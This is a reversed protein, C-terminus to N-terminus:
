WRSCQIPYSLIPYCVCFILCTTTIEIGSGIGISNRDCGIFAASTMTPYSLFLFLIPYSYSLVPIPYSYSLITIPYSLTPTPYSYSLIPIPYSLIPYSLIHYSHAPILYFLFWIPYSLIGEPGPEQHSWTSM